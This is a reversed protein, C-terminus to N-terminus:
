ELRRALAQNRRFCPDGSYPGWCAPSAEDSQSPLGHGLVLQLGHPMGLGRFWFSKRKLHPGQCGGRQSSKQELNRGEIVKWFYLQLFIRWYQKTLGWEQEIVKWM